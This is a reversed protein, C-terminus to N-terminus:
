DIHRRFQASRLLRNQNKSKRLDQRLAILNITLAVNAILSIIFIIAVWDAVSLDEVFGFVLM